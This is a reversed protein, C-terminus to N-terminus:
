VEELGPAIQDLLGAVVDQMRDIDSDRSLRHDGDKVFHLVVDESQVQRALTLSTQWPVDPDCMGHLLRIPCTLAIETSLLLHRRGDAILAKTFPTPEASYDSPIDIRGHKDLAQKQM